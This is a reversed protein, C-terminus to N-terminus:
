PRNWGASQMAEASLLGIDTVPVVGDLWPEKQEVERYGAGILKYTALDM